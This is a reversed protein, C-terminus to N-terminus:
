SLNHLVEFRVDIPEGLIGTLINAVTSQARDSLWEQAPRNEVGITAVGNEISLLISDKVWKDFYVRSFQGRLQDLAKEWINLETEPIQYNAILQDRFVKERKEEAQQIGELEERIQRDEGAEAEREAKTRFGKPPSYDETIAKRLYGAPNRSVLPSKIDVLYDLLEIKELLYSVTHEDALQKAVRSTIGRNLMEKVVVSVTQQKVTQQPTWQHALGQSELPGVRPGSTARPTNNIKLSYTTPLNGKKPDSNRIANILNKEKLSQLSRKVTSKSLGTGRDLLRGDKTKIGEVLQNLSIDDTNKKFGYTRRIIYLMVKLESEKLDQMIHDFLLDPTPTTTPNDFGQFNSFDFRDNHQPQKTNAM